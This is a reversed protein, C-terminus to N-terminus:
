LKTNRSTSSLLVSFFSGSFEPLCPIKRSYVTLRILGQPYIYVWNTINLFIYVNWHAPHCDLLCLVMHLNDQLMSDAFPLNVLSFCYCTYVWADMSSVYPCILSDRLLPKPYFNLCFSLFCFSLFSSTSPHNHSISNNSHGRVFDHQFKLPM